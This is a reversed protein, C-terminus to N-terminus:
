RRTIFQSWAKRGSVDKCVIRVVRDTDNFIYHGETILSGDKKCIRNACYFTDTLFSIQVVPSTEVHMRDKEVIIQYIEPAQSCYFRGNKIAGTIESKNLLPCNVMIYGGFTDTNYFHTDDVAFLLPIRGKSALVDAYSCSDGRDGHTESVTNWIEIGDLSKLMNVDEHTLLSWYPHALIAMGKHHKIQNIIEQPTKMEEFCFNDELGIGTIHFAKRATFDNIHLEIAGLLLFKDEEYGKMFENHDTIALFDYDKNRYLKICEQPSLLGDSISTHTHLNGKYWGMKKDFLQGKTIPIM